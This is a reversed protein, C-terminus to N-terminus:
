PAWKTTNFLGESRSKEISAHHRAAEAKREALQEATFAVEPRPLRPEGEPVSISMSAGTAELVTLLRVIALAPGGTEMESLYRQSFDLQAALQRQTLGAAMRAQAIVAGIDEPRHIRAEFAM